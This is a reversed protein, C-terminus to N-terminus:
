YRKFDIRSRLDERTTPMEVHIAAPLGMFTSSLVWRTTRSRGRVERRRRPMIAADSQGASPIHSPAAYMASARFFFFFFFFPLLFFGGTGGVPQV